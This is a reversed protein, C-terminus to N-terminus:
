ESDVDLDKKIESFENEVVKLKEKLHKILMSGEKVRELGEEIDISERSQFWEITKELKDMLQQLTEKSKTM